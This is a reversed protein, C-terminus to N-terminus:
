RFMVTMADASPAVWPVRDRDYGVLQDRDAGAMLMDYNNCRGCVWEWVNPDLVMEAEHVDPFGQMCVWCYNLHYSNFM